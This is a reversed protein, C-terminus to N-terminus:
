FSLMRIWLETEPRLLSLDFLSMKADDFTEKGGQVATGLLGMATTPREALM